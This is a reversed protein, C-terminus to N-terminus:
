KAPQKIAMDQVDFHTFYHMDLGSLAAVLDASLNTERREYKALIQVGSNKLRAQRSRHSKAGQTTWNEDCKM